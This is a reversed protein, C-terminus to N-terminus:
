QKLTLDVTYDVTIESETINANTISFILEKCIHYGFNYQPITISNSSITYTNYYINGSNSKRVTTIDVGNINSLDITIFANYINDGNSNLCIYKSGLDNITFQGSKQSTSSIDYYDQNGSKRVWGDTFGSDLVDNYNTNMYSNCISYNIFEESLSTNYDQLVQDIVARTNGSDGHTTIIDKVIDFGYEKTLYFFFLFTNYHDIGNAYYNTLSSGSSKIFKEVRLDYEEDTFPIYEDTLGISNVYYLGVMTASAELLWKVSVNIEEYFDMGAENQLAHFYEHALTCIYDEEATEFKGKQAILDYNLRIYSYNDEKNFVNAVRGGNTLGYYVGMVDSTELYIKYQNNSNTKPAQFCIGEETGCFFEEILEISDAVKQAKGKDMKDNDYYIIFRSGSNKVSKVNSYSPTYKLEADFLGRSNNNSQYSFDYDRVIENSNNAELDKIFSNNGVTITYFNGQAVKEVDYNAYLKVKSSSLLEVQIKEDEKTIECYDVEYLNLEIDKMNNNVFVSKKDIGYGNPLSNLNINLVMYESIRDIKKENETIIYTNYYENNFYVITEGDFVPTAVYIDVFIRLDEHEEINFKIIFNNEEKDNQSYLENSLSGNEEVSIVSKAAVSVGLSSFGIFLIILFVLYKRM